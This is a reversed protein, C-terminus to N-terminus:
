AEDKKGRFMIGNDIQIEWKSIEEATGYGAEAMAAEIKKWIATHEKHFYNFVEDSKKKYEDVLACVEQHLAKVAPVQDIIFLPSKEIEDDDKMMKLVDLISMEKIRYNQAKKSMKKNKKHVNSVWLIMKMALFTCRM